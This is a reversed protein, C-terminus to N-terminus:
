DEVREEGGSGIKNWDGDSRGDGLWTTKRLVITAPALGGFRTPATLVEM